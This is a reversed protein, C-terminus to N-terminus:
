KKAAATTLYLGHDPDIRILLGPLQRSKVLRNVQYQLYVKSEADV